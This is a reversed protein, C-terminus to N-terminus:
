RVDNSVIVFHYLGVAPLDGATSDVVLVVGIILFTQWLSIPM